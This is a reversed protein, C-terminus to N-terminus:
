SGRMEQRIALALHHGIDGCVIAALLDRAQGALRGFGDVGLHGAGTSLQADCRAIFGHAKQEVFARELGHPFIGMPFWVCYAGLEDGAKRWKNVHLPCIVM